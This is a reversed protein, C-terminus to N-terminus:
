IYLFFVVFKDVQVLAKTHQREVEKRNYYLRTPSSAKKHKAIKKDRKATDNWEETQHGDPKEDLM